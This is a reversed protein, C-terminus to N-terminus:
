FKAQSRCAGLRSILTIRGEMWWLAFGSDASLEAKLRKTLREAGGKHLLDIGASKIINVESEILGILGRGQTRAAYVNLLGFNGGIPLHGEPASVDFIADALAIWVGNVRWGILDGFRERNRNAQLYIRRQVSFGFRGRSFEVWLSDITQLDICPFTEIERITLGKGKGPAKGVAQTMLDRTAADAERWKGVPLLEALSEYNIGRESALVSDEVSPAMSGQNLSDRTLYKILRNIGIDFNQPKTLDLYTLFSLWHPLSTPKVILPVVRGERAAPDLTRILLGEFECWVSEIWEPTIVLITYRSTSIAKEINKIIPQGIEFDRDLLVNLGAKEIHPLFDQYVWESDLSSYSIFVDHKYANKLSM